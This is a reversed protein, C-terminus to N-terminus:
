SLGCMGGEAILFELLLKNVSCAGEIVGALTFLMKEIVYEIHIESFNLM